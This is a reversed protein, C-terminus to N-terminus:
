ESPVALKLVQDILQARMREVDAQTQVNLATRERRGRAGERRRAGGPTCPSMHLHQYQESFAASKTGPCRPSQPPCTLDQNGCRPESGGGTRRPAAIEDLHSLVQRAQQRERNGLACAVPRRDTLAAYDGAGPYEGVLAPDLKVTSTDMHWDTVHEGPLGPLDRKMACVYALALARIEDMIAELAKGFWGYFVGRVVCAAGAEFYLRMVNAQRGGYGTAAATIMVRLLRLADLKRTREQFKASHVLKMLVKDPLNTEFVRQVDAGRM